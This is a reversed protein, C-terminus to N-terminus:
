LCIRIWRLLGRVQLHAAFGDGRVQAVQPRAEAPGSRPFHVGAVFRRQTRFQEAIFLHLLMALDKRSRV